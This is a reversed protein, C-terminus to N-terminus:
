HKGCLRDIYDAEQEVEEIRMALTAWEERFAAVSLQYTEQDILNRKFMAYLPGSIYIDIEEEMDHLLYSNNEKGIQREYDVRWARAMQKFDKLTKNKENKFDRQM